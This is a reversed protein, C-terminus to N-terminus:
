HGESSKKVENNTMPALTHHTNQSITRPQSEFYHVDEIYTYTLIMLYIVEIIVVSLDRQPPIKPTDCAVDPM